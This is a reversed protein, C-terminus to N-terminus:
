RSGSREAFNVALAAAILGQLRELIDLFRDSEAEDVLGDAAIILLEDLDTRFSKIEVLLQLVAQPLPLLKVEPLLDNAVGSKLKLHWYCLVPMAAVEAMAAVTEDSPLGRGSEYLRVSEPSVGLYTAWREQTLGAADRANKYINRSGTKM